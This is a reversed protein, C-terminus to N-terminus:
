MDKELRTKKQIFALAVKGLVGIVAAPIGAVPLLHWKQYSSLPEETMWALLYWMVVALFLVIGLAWLKYKVVIKNVKEM